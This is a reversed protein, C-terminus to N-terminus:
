LVEEKHERLLQDLDKDGRGSLNLVITYGKPYTSKLVHAIAHASELAPIIGESRVTKRFAEIVEKDTVSRYDVRKIDNLYCHEPGVGPYDLGASISHTEKIQGNEDQLLYMKSGHFVGVKGSTITAAHFDTHLGKGAAEVGTLKVSTDEIFASFIGIANSGGGICAIVEDPLTGFQNLCQKRAETGIISQFNRVMEPYPAPGIASGIVYFCSTPHSVWYRLAESTADKLVNSGKEVAIVTAGLMRMRDVNHAQRKIDSFGMFVTCKMGLKAAATATAIGHQGAGTEAILHDIGMRKALRAQGIANNIKHAGTHCLDERKFYLHIGLEQSLNQAYYLPTERGIFFKHDKNLDELFDPDKMAQRYAKEVNELPGALTEPMFKGGYEGYYGNSKM